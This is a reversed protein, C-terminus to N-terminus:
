LFNSVGRHPSHTGEGLGSITCLLEPGMQLFKKGASSLIVTEEQNGGNEHALFAARALIKGHAGQSETDKVSITGEEWWPWLDWGPQHQAAVSGCVGSAPDWQLLSRGGDKRYGRSGSWRPGLPASTSLWPVSPHSARPREYSRAPPFM